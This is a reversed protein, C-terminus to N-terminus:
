QTSYTDSWVPQIPGGYHRLNEKLDIMRAQFFSMFQQAAEFDRDKLTLQWAAYFAIMDHYSQIRPDGYFPLDSDKLLKNPMSLYSLIVVGTTSTAPTIYINGGDMVYRAPTGVDTDWTSSTGSQLQIPVAGELNTVLGSSDRWQVGKNLSVFDTPIPLRGQNLPTVTIEITNKLIRLESNMYNCASNVAQLREAQTYFNTSSDALLTSLLQSIELLNM